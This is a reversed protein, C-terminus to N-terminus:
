QTNLLYFSLLKRLYCVLPTHTVKGIFLSSFSDRSGVNVGAGTM